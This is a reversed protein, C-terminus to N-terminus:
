YDVGNSLWDFTLHQIFDPDRWIWFLLTPSSLNIKHLFYYHNRVSSITMNPMSCSSYIEGGQVLRTQVRGERLIDQARSSAGWGSAFIQPPSFRLLFILILTPLFVWNTWPQSFFPFTQIENAVQLRPECSIHFFTAKFRDPIMM